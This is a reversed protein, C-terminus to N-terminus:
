EHTRVRDLVNLTALRSHESEVEFPRGLAQAVAAGVPVAAEAPTPAANLEALLSTVGGEHVGCPTILGFGRLDNRLNLAFGHLTFGARFHLGVAAIKSVRGGTAPLWVGPLGPRRDAALGYSALWGILAAEVAHVVREPGLPGADMLLYGVLQGPEHATALGGRETHVLSFGSGQLQTEDPLDPVPRRGTTIVADHELLWLEDREEGRQRRERFQRQAALAEQYPWRGRWRGILPAPSPDAM